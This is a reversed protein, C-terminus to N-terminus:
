LHDTNDCRDKQFETYIASFTSASLGECWPSNEDRDWAGASDNVGEDRGVALCTWCTSLLFNRASM